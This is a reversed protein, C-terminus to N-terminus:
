STAADWWWAGGAIPIQYRKLLESHRRSYVRATLIGRPLNGMNLPHFGDVDKHPDRFPV